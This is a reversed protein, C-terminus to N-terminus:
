NQSNSLFFYAHIFSLKLKETFEDVADSKLLINKLVKLM